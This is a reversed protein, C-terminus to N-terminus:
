LSLQYRLNAMMLLKLASTELTLWEDSRNVYKLFTTTLFSEFYGHMTSNLHYQFNQWISLCYSFLDHLFRDFRILRIRSFSMLHGRLLLLAGLFTIVLFGM